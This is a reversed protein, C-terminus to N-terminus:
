TVLCTITFNWCNTLTRIIVVYTLNFHNYIEYNYIEYYVPLFYQVTMYFVNLVASLINM